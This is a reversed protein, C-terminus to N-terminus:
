LVKKHIEKKIKQQQHKQKNKVKEKTVAGIQKPKKNKNNTENNNQTVQSSLFCKYVHVYTIM